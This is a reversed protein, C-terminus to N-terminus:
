VTSIWSPSRRTVVGILFSAHDWKEQNSFHKMFIDAAMRDTHCDRLAFIGQKYSEHMWCLNVGHTRRVHRLAPFRGSIIMRSTAQNDEWLVM